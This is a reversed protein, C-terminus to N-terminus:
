PKETISDMEEDPGRVPMGFAHMGLRPPSAIKKTSFVGLKFNTERFQLMLGSDEEDYNNFPIRADTPCSLLSRMGCDLTTLIAFVDVNFV